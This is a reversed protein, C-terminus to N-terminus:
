IVNGNKIGAEIMQETTGTGAEYTVDFALIGDEFHYIDTHTNPNINHLAIVEYLEENIVMYNGEPDPDKIDVKKLTGRHRIISM